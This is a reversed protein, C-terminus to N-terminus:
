FGKAAVYEDATMSQHGPYDDCHCTVTGDGLWMVAVEIETMGWDAAQDTLIGYSEHGSDLLNEVVQITAHSWCNDTHAETATTTTM